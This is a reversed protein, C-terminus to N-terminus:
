PGNASAGNTRGGESNTTTGPASDARLNAAIARVMDATGLDGGIDRTRAGAGLATEVAKELESALTPSALSYRLALALSLVTGVPNAIGQGAIDPATGSVSEYLGPASGDAPPGALTASALMGISGVVMAASDSLIDGFTNETLIVDFQGPRRVLQMACNDVYMHTLEVDPYQRGLSTVVDRWLSGTALVNAKDVSCLRSRRSRALEFAVLAIREIEDSTYVLSDVARRRDGITEIGQPRGFYLGGLLERVIVMDVDRVVERKLPSFEELAPYTAVPRLNAYGGLGKRLKLVCPEPRDARPLRAYEETSEAGFLVASSAAALALTEDSITAGEAAFARYGAPRERIEIRPDTREALWAFIPEMAGFIEPGIGDGPLLLLTPASM